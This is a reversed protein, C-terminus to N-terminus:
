GSFGGSAMCEDIAAAIHCVKEAPEPPSFVYGQVYDCGMAAIREYQFRTEVGEAVTEIGFGAAIAIVARVIADPGVGRGVGDIFSKDIKIKDFPFKQIYALSSYGTGFDDMAIRVGLAKISRLIAAVKEDDDILVSETVEIELRGAPLGSELLARQIDGLIDGLRM